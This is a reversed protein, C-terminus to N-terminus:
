SAATTPIAAATMSVRTLATPSAAPRLLIGTSAPAPAAEELHPDDATTTARHPRDCNSWNHVPVSGKTSAALSRIAFVTSVAKAM